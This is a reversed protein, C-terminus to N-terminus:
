LLDTSSGNDLVQLHNQKFLETVEVLAEGKLVQVRTDTLGPSLMRVASHDGVRLFVGPTLLMEAKGNQTELVQNQGVDAKGASSAALRSGQVSVQGEVYNVVGPYGTSAARATSGFGAAAALALLLGPKTILNGM